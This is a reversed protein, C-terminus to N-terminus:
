SKIFSEVTKQGNENVIEVFYKGKSLRSVDITCENSRIIEQGTISFINVQKVTLETAQIHLMETVITPSIYQNKSDIAITM